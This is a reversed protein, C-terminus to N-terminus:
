NVWGARPWSQGPESVGERFGLGPKRRRGTAPDVLRDPSGCPRRGLRPQEPGHRRRQGGHRAMVPKLQRPQKGRMEAVLDRDSILPSSKPETFNTAIPLAGEREDAHMTVALSIQRMNSACKISQSKGKAKGLAPLLMGALIAIIAIVVLLEILTFARDNRRKM